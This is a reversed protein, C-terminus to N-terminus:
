PALSITTSDSQAGGGVGGAGGQSVGEGGAGGDGGLASLTTASAFVASGITLSALGGRSGVGGTSVTGQGGVAGAGGELFLNSNSNFTLSTADFSTDGGASADFGATGTGGGGGAGGLLTAASSSDLTMDAPVLFTSGGFGGVTGSGLNGNAGTLLLSSNSGLNLTSSSLFSDGGNGGAGSAAGGELGFQFSSSDAQLGLVGDATLGATSGSAGEVLFGAVPGEFTVNQSVESLPGSLTMANSALTGFTIVGGSPDTNVVTLAGGLSGVSSDGNNNFVGVTVPAPQAMLGSPTLVALSLFLITPFRLSSIM